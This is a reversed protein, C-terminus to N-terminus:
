QSHENNSCASGGSGYALGRPHPVRLLRLARGGVGKDNAVQGGLQVIKSRSKASTVIGSALAPDGPSSHSPPADVEGRRTMQSSPRWSEEDSPSQEDRIGPPM